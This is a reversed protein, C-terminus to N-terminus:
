RNNAETKGQPKLLSETKDQTEAVSRKAAHPKQLKASAEKM